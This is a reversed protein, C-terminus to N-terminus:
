RIDGGTSQVRSISLCFQIRDVFNYELVSKLLEFLTLSFFRGFLLLLELILDNGLALGGCKPAVHM